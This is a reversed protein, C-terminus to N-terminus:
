PRKVKTKDEHSPIDAYEEDTVTLLGNRCAESKGPQFVGGAFTPFLVM